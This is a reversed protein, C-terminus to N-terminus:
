PRGRKTTLTALVTALDAGTLAGRVSLREGSATTLEWGGDDVAVRAREVGEDVVDVPVLRPAGAPPGVGDSCSGLRWKWWTLTHPNVGHAEGFARASQGSRQWKRVLRAWECHTRRVVIGITDAMRM